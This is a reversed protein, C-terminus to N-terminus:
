FVQEASVQEPAPAVVAPATGWATYAIELNQAGVITVHKRMLDDAGVWLQVTMTTPLVGDDGVIIEQAATDLKTVDVTLAYPQTEVGDVVVPDGSKELGTIGPALSVLSQTPDLAAAILGLPATESAPDAIDITNFLNGSAEGAGVYYTAAVRRVDIQITDPVDYVLRVDQTGDLFAVDATLGVLLDDMTVATSLSVSGAARHAATLREVVNETTLENSVEETPTPDPTSAPTSASPSAVPETDGSCAGLTLTMVSALSLAALGRSLHM